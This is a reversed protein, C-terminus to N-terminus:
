SYIVILYLVIFLFLVANNYAFMEGDSCIIVTVVVSWNGRKLYDTLKKKKLLEFKEEFLRTKGMLELLSFPIYIFSPYRSSVWLRLTHIKQDKCRSKASLYGIM